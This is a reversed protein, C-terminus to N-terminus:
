IELSEEYNERGSEGPLLEEQVSVAYDVNDQTIRTLTM